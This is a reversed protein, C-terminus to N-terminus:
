QEATGNVLHAVFGRDRNQQHPGASLLRNFYCGGVPPAASPLLRFYSESDNM